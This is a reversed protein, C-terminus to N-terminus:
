KAGMKAYMALFTEQAAARYSDKWSDPLDTDWGSERGSEKAQCEAMARAGAEVMADTVTPADIWQPAEGYVQTAVITGQRGDPAIVSAGLPISASPEILQVRGSCGYDLARRRRDQEEFYQREEESAYMSGSKGHESM